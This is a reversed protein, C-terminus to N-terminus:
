YPLDDDAGDNEWRADEWRQYLELRDRVVSSDAWMAIDHLTNREAAEVRRVREWEARDIHREICDRIMGELVDPALADLECCEPGFQRM